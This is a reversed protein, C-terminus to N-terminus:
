YNRLATGGVTTESADELTTTIRYAVFSSEQPDAAVLDITWGTVDTVWLEGPFSESGKLAETVANFDTTALDYETDDGEPLDAPSKYCHVEDTAPDREIRRLESLDPAGNAWSTDGAWLVLYNAGKAVVRESVRLAAALRMAVTENCVLADHVDQGESTGYATAYLMRAVAAAVLATIVMAVLLEVLTLGAPRATGIRRPGIAHPRCARRHEGAAAADITAGPTM